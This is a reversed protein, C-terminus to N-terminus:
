WEVQRRAHIIYAYVQATQMAIREWRYLRLTVRTAFDRRYAAAVPDNFLHNVAWAISLPDNPYTTLGNREHDVVETLGGVSSVIVNCNLTMAELAVIGFPEYLSPFIAADAIQYISDREYDNIYGLFDVAREVGLEFAQPYLKESNKGAVLLRTNPHDVLIRPMARILVQAGAMRHM